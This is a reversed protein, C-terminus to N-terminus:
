VFLYIRDSCNVKVSQSPQDNSYAKLFLGMGRESGTYVQILIKSM